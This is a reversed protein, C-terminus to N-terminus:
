DAARPAAGGGAAVDSAAEDEGPDAYEEGSRAFEEGPNARAEPRGGDFGDDAAEARGLALQAEALEVDPTAHEIPEPTETWRETEANARARRPGRDAAPGRSARPRSRARHRTPPRGATRRDKARKRNRAM